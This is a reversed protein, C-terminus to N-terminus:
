LKINFSDSLDQKGSDPKLSTVCVRVGSLTIM